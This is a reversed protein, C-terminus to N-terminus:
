GASKLCYGLGRRTEIQEHGLKRRLRTIMAEVANDVRGDEEDYIHDKLEERSVIRGKNHALYSILRFELPTLHAQHGNVTVIMQNTDLEIQGTRIQPRLQGHARRLLARLRAVLEEMQFPKSLYDDAGANIAAVREAWGGRATLVILPTPLEEERWRQLVTLGDLHPLGLDLVIGDFEETSGLFWADEGNGCIKVAFGAEGLGAAIDSAIEVEDEVVLIRM